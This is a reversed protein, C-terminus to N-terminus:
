PYDRTLVALGALFAGAMTPEYGSEGEYRWRWAMGSPQSVEVGMERLGAVLANWEEVLTAYPTTLDDRQRMERRADDLADALRDILGLLALAQRKGCRAGKEALQARLAATIDRAETTSTMPEEEFGPLGIAGQRRLLLAVPPPGVWGCRRDRCYLRPRKRGWLALPGGCDPCPRTIRPPPASM